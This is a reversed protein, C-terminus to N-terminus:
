ITSTPRSFGFVIVGYIVVMGLRVQLVVQIDGDLPDNM